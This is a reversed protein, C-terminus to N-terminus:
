LCRDLIAFAEALDDNTIVAAPLFLRVCAPEHGGYYLVLGADFCRRILARTKELSGDGVQFAIMAGVGDIESIAGPHHGALVRLHERTLRELERERGEPGFMGGEVMREIMRRGVAM